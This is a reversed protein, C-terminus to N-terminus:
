NRMYPTLQSANNINLKPSPHFSHVRQKKTSLFWRIDASEKAVLFIDPVIEQLAM